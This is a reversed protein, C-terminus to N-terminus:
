ERSAVGAGSYVGEGRLRIFVAAPRVGVVCSDEGYSRTRAKEPISAATDFQETFYIRVRLAIGVSFVRRTHRAHTGGESRESGRRCLASSAGFSDRTCIPFQEDSTLSAPRATFCSRQADRQSPNTQIARLAETRNSPMPFTKSNTPLANQPLLCMYVACIAESIELILPRLDLMFYDRPAAVLAPFPQYISFADGGLAMSAATDVYGPNWYPIMYSFLDAANQENSAFRLPRMRLSKRDQLRGCHIGGQAKLSARISVEPWCSKDQPRVTVESRRYPSSVDHFVQPHLANMDRGSEGARGLKIVCSQPEPSLVIVTVHGRDHHRSM